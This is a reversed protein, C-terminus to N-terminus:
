KGKIGPNGGSREGESPSVAKLPKTSIIVGKAQEANVNSVKKSKILSVQNPAQNDKGVPKQALPYLLDTPFFNYQLGAM